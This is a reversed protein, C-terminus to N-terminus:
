TRLVSLESLDPRWRRCATALWGVGARFTSDYTARTLGARLGRARPLLLGTVLAVCALAMGDMGTMPAGIDGESAAAPDHGPSAAAVRPGAAVSSIMGTMPPDHDTTPGHMALIGIVAVVAILVRGPWGGGRLSAIAAPTPATM